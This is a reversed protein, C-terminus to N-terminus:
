LRCSFKILFRRLAFFSVLAAARFRWWWRFVWNWLAESARLFWTFLHMQLCNARADTRVHICIWSCCNVESASHWKKMKSRSRCKLKILVFICIGFRPKRGLKLDAHATPFLACETGSSCLSPSIKKMCARVTVKEYRTSPSSSQLYFDSVRTVYSWLSFCCDSDCDAPSLLEVCDRNIWTWWEISIKQTEKNTFFLYM